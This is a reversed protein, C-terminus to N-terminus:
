PRTRKRGAGCHFPPTNQNLKKNMEPAFAFRYEPHQACLARVVGEKSDKQSIYGVPDGWFRRKERYRAFSSLHAHRGKFPIAASATVEVPEQIEHSIPTAM